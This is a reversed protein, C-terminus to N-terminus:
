ETAFLATTGAITRESPSRTLALLRSANILATDPMAPAASDPTNESIPPGDNAAAIAITPNMVVVTSAM